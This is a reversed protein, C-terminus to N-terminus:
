WKFFIKGKGNKKGNSYEGEYILKRTDSKFIRVLGNPLIEKYKGSANKYNDSDIRLREQLSKNDIAIKLKKAQSILSFIINLIYRSKVKSFLNM